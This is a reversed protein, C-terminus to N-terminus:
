SSLSRPPRAGGNEGDVESLEGGRFRGLVRNYCDEALKKARLFQGPLPFYEIKPQITVLM